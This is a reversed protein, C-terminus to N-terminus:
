DGYELARVLRGLAEIVEPSPDLFGLGFGAPDEGRPERWWSVQARVRLPEWASPAGLTVVVEAGIELRADTVAFLGGTGVDRTYCHIPATAPGREIEV